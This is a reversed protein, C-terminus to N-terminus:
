ASAHELLLNYEGGLLANEIVEDIKNKFIPKNAPIEQNELPWRGYKQVYLGVSENLFATSIRDLGIFSIYLADPLISSIASFLKEGDAQNIALSSSIIDKVIIRM